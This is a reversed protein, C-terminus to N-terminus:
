HEDFPSTENFNTLDPIAFSFDAKDFLDSTLALNQDFSQRHADSMGLFAIMSGVSASVLNAHLSVRVMVRLQDEKSIEGPISKVYDTLAQWGKLNKEFTLWYLKFDKDALFGAARLYFRQILETAHVPLDNLGRLDTLIPVLAKLLDAREDDFRSMLAEKRRRRPDDLLHKLREIEAQDDKWIFYPACILRLFVGGVVTIIIAWAVYGALAEQMADGAVFLIAPLLIGAMISLKDSLLVSKALAREAILKLYTLM